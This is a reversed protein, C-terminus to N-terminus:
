KEVEFHCFKSGGRKECVQVKRPAQMAQGPTFGPTASTPEVSSASASYMPEILDDRGAAVLAVSGLTLMGFRGARGLLYAAQRRLQAQQEPPLSQPDIGAPKASVRGENETLAAQRNGGTRTKVSAVYDSLGFETVPVGARRAQKYYDVGGILMVTVAVFGIVHLKFM